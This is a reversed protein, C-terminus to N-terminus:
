TSLEDVDAEHWLLLSTRLPSFILAYSIPAETSVLQRQWERSVGMAESWQGARQYTGENAPLQGNVEQDAHQVQTEWVKKGAWQACASWFRPRVEIVWDQKRIPGNTGWFSEICPTLVWHHNSFNLSTHLLVHHPSLCMWFWLFTAVLKAKQEM